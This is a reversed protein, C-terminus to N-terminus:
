CGIVVRIVCECLTVPLQMVNKVGSLMGSSTGGRSPHGQADSRAQMEVDGGVEAIVGDPTAASDVNQADDLTNAVGEALTVGGEPSAEGNTTRRSRADRIYDGQRINEAVNDWEGPTTSRTRYVAVRDVAETGTWSTM